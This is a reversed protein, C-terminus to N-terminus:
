DEIGPFDTELKCGTKKVEDRLGGIEGALTLPFVEAKEPYREAIRDAIAYVIGSSHPQEKDCKELAWREAWMLAIRLEHWNMTIDVTDGAIMPMAETHCNPCEERNETVDEEHGCIICKLRTM